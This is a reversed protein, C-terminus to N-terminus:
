RVSRYLAVIKWSACIPQQDLRHQRIHAEQIECACVQFRCGHPIIQYPSGQGVRCFVQLILLYM